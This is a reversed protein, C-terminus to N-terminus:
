TPNETKKFKLGTVRGADMTFGIIKDESDRSFVIEVRGQFSDEGAQNLIMAPLYGAQLKLGSGQISLEYSIQLEDSYYQGTFITLEEISLLKKEVRKGVINQGSQHLTVQSAPADGENLFSLQADVVKLFFNTDSEPYLDVVEQGTAQGKLRGDELSINIFFGPALQYQGVYRELIAPDIEIEIREAPSLEDDHNDDNAQESDDTEDTELVNELIIDIVLYALGTPNFSELNSLIAVSFKYDPLRILQSRYGGLAGGHEVVWAGKYSGNSLAFAYNVEDGNSFRGNCLMTDIIAQSSEGLSNDYFNQDWKYLDEVSSYVGGSGVLDFRMIMNGFSGDERKTYGFARKPILDLNDDHFRTNDMGLPKFIKEDAYEKLSKGSANEIIMALLFYCSNSYLFQEGPTFNLEKQNCILEYVADEPIYDLYDRGTLAWLTLYDRIGSTHHILHRITIPLEYDPIEALYDRIDDDLSLKGEEVLLLICMAVFQKSVSGIYFVTNSNIPVDHELDAMGYGQKYIIQGDRIVALACGPSNDKDWSKFVQDIRDTEDISLDQSFGQWTFLSLIGLIVTNFLYHKM